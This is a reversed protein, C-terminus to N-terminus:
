NWPWQELCIQYNHACRCELVQVVSHYMTDLHLRLATRANGLYSLLTETSYFSAFELRLVFLYM